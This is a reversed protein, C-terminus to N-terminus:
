TEDKILNFLKFPMVFLPSQPYDVKNSRNKMAKIAKEFDERTLPQVVNDYYSM